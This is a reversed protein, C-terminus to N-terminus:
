LANDLYEELKKIAAEKEEPTSAKKIEEGIGTLAEKKSLFCLKNECSRMKALAKNLSDSAASRSIKRNEAIEGLSLDYVYYDEFLRKQSATLFGQYAEYLRSATERKELIRDKM